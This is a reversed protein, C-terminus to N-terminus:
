QGELASVTPCNDANYHGNHRSQWELLCGASLAGKWLLELVLGSNYGGVGGFMASAEEELKERKTLTAQSPISSLCIGGLGYVSEMEAGDRPRTCRLDPISTWDGKSAEQEVGAQGRHNMRGVVLWLSGKFRLASGAVQQLGFKPSGMVKPIFGFEKGAKGPGALNAMGLKRAKSVTRRINGAASAKETGQVGWVKTGEAKFAKGGLTLVAPEKEDNLNWDRSTLAGLLGYRVIGGLVGGGERETM